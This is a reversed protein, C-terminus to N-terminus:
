PPAFNDVMNRFELDERYLKILRDSIPGLLMFDGGLDYFEGKKADFYTSFETTFLEAFHTRGYRARGGPTPSLFLIHV